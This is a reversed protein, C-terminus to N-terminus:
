SIFEVSCKKKAIKKCNKKKKREEEEKQNTMRLCKIVKESKLGDFNGTNQTCLYKLWSM